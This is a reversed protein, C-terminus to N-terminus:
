RGTTIISVHSSHGFTRSAVLWVVSRSNNGPRRESRSAHTLGVIGCVAGHETSVREKM